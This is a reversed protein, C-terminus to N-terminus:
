KKLKVSSGSKKFLKKYAKYKAKPVKVSIGDANKTFAKKGVATLVSSNLKVKKLKKCKEFASKGISRVNSGITVSTVKGNGSLAKDAIATVKYTYGQHVVSDPINVSKSKKAVGTFKVEDDATVEYSCGNETFKKDRIVSEVTGDAHLRVIGYGPNSFLIKLKFYRQGNADTVNIGYLYEVMYFIYDIDDDTLGKRMSNKTVVAEYTGVSSKPDAFFLSYDDSTDLSISQNPAASIIFQAGRASDQNISIEELSDLIYALFMVAKADDDLVSNKAVIGVTPAYKQVDFSKPQGNSFNVVIEDGAALANTKWGFFMIIAMAFAFVIRNITAQVKKM